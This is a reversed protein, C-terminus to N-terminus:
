QGTSRNAASTGWEPAPHITKLTAPVQRLLTGARIAMFSALALWLVHPNARSYALLGLPLFGLLTAALTSNRLLSGATLGLFYGDLLFAIGGFGLTPLLWGVYHTVQEIVDQHQTMLSFLPQPWLSFTLAIGGSLLVSLSLGRILLARLHPRDGAGYFQGAYTETAFALGDVFYSTLTVVQLLLTNAALIDTGLAASWNTFLAFSTVVAFTRLMIDRNLRFIARLAAGEWLRSRLQWFQRPSVDRWVFMLGVLLM